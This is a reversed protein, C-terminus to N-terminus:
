NSLEDEKHLGVFHAIAEVTQNLDNNELFLTNVYLKSVRRADELYANDYGKRSEIEDSTSGRLGMRKEREADSCMLYVFMIPRNSKYLTAFFEAGKADIVYIDADDVQHGTAGYLEGAVETYAVLGETKSISNFEDRTCFTHGSEGEYRPKRTTCSQVQKLLYRRGLEGAVTSKGSGSAGLLLILPKM